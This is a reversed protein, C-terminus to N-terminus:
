LDDSTSRADRLSGSWGEAEVGGGVLEVSEAEPHFALMLGVSYFLVVSLFTLIVKWGM